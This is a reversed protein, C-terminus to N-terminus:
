ESPIGTKREEELRIWDILLDRMRKSPVYVTVPKGNRIASRGIWRLMQYLAYRDQTLESGNRRFYQISSSPLFLNACYCLVQAASFDVAGYQQTASCGRGRFVSRLASEDLHKQIHGPMAYAVSERREGGPGTHLLVNLMDKFLDAADVEKSAFWRSTYADSNEGRQNYREDRVIHLLSSISDNQGPDVIDQNCCVDLASLYHFLPSAQPMPHLIYTEAFSEFLQPQLGWYMFSRGKASLRLLLRDNYTYKPIGLMGLVYNESHAPSLQWTDHQILMLQKRRIAEEFNTANCQDIKDAWKIADEPSILIYGNCRIAKLLKDDCYHLLSSKMAVNMGGALLHALHAKKSACQVGEVTAGETPRAFSEGAAFSVFADVEQESSGVFLLPTTPHEAAIKACDELQDSILSNEIFHVM